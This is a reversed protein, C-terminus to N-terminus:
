AKRARSKHFNMYAFEVGNIEYKKKIKGESTEDAERVPTKEEHVTFLEGSRRDEAVHVPNM